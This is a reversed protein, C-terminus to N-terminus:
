GDTKVKVYKSAVEWVKGEISTSEWAVKWQEVFSSPQGFHAGDAIIHYHRVDKALLSWIDDFDFDGFLEEIIELIVEETPCTEFLRRNFSFDQIFYQPKAFGPTWCVGLTLSKLLGSAVINKCIFRAWYAGLRDVKGLDKGYLGGGGQIVSCGYTCAMLKRNTAGTDVALGGEIFSGAPNVNIEAEEATVGRSRFKNLIPNIAEELVKVRLKTLNDIPLHNVSLVIKKIKIRGATIADIVVLCKADDFVGKVDRLKGIILRALDYEEPMYTDLGLRSDCAHGYTVSQDGPRRFGKLSYSNIEDGQSKLDMRIKFLSSDYKNVDLFCKVHKKIEWRLKKYDKESLKHLNAIEGAVLVAGSSLLVEISAGKAGDFYSETLYALQDALRDALRDPHGRGVFEAVRIM